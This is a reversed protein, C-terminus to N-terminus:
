LFKSESPNIESGDERDGHTADVEVLIRTQMSFASAYIVFIFAIILIGIKNMINNYKM